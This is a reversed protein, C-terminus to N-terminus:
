GLVRRGPVMRLGRLPMMCWLAAKGFSALLVAGSEIFLPRAVPLLLRRLRALDCESPSLTDRTWQLRVSCCVPRYVLASLPPRRPFSRAANERGTQEPSRSCRKCSLERTSVMSRYGICAGDRVAPRVFRPEVPLASPQRLVDAPAIRNIGPSNIEPRGPLASASSVTHTLTRYLM